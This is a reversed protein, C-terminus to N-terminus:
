LRTLALTPALTLALTLAAPLLCSAPPLLLLSLPPAPVRPPLAGKQLGPNGPEVELGQRFARLAEKYDGRVQHPTPSPAPTPTPAPSAEKCDARVVLAAGKRSYGKAWTPALRLCENADELAKTPDRVSAHCASRNSYLIHNTKDLRIALTFHKIAAAHEGASFAANGLEKARAAGASVADGGDSDSDEAAPSPAPAPAPAPASEPAPAHADGAIAEQERLGEVLKVLEQKETPCEVAALRLAAKLESVRWCSSDAGLQQLSERLAAKSAAAARIPAIPAKSADIAVVLQSHGRGLATDRASNGDADRLQGSAGARLLIDAVGLKNNQAASHLPTSEASNRLHVDANCEEILWKALPALGKAAAWHLASHGIFGLSCGKGCYGLLRPEAALLPQMAHVDGRKAADLWAKGHPELLAADNDPNATTM